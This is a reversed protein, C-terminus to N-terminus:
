RRSTINNIKQQLEAVLQQALVKGSDLVNRKAQVYKAYNKGAVVILVIGRNHQAVLQDAFASGVAGGDGGSGVTEFTSKRLVQGDIAVVYGTSSRLNGTRDTYDNPRGVRRLEKLVKEGIVCLQKAIAMRVRQTKRLLMAQIAARPTVMEISM